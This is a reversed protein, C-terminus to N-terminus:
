KPELAFFDDRLKNNQAEGWKLVDAPKEGKLVIRQGMQISIDREGLEDAWMIPKAWGMTAIFPKYRENNAYKPLALMSKLPPMGGKVDLYTDYGKPSSLFQLWKVSAARLDPNRAAKTTLCYSWFQANNRNAMKPDKAPGSPYPAVGYNLSPNNAKIRSFWSATGFNMASIGQYFAVSAAEAWGWESVKDKLLLNMFWEFTKRGIETNWTVRRERADFMPQGNQELLIKWVIHEQQEFDLYYGARVLKGNADRKTLKIADLRFEDWTKPPAKIGAEAFADKNYFLSWVGMDQPIGYYKGRFISIDQAAVFDAKMKAPPFADEPLPALFGNQVWLPVWGYYPNIVDPGQGVPVSAAVKQTIEEYQTPVLTVTIDPNDKSFEAVCAKFADDTLSFPVYWFEITVPKAAVAFATALLLVMVILFRSGPGSRM